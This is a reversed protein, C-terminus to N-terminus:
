RRSDLNTYTSQMVNACLRFLRVVCKETRTVTTLRRLDTYSHRLLHAVVVFMKHRRSLQYSRHTCQNHCVGEFDCVNRSYRMQLQFPDLKLRQITDISVAAPGWRDLATGSLPDLTFGRVPIRYSTPGNVAYVLGGTACIM